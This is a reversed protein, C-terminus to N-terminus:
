KLIISQLKSMAKKMEDSDKLNNVSNLGSEGGGTGGGGSSSNNPVEKEIIIVQNRKSRRKLNDGNRKQNSVVKLDKKEGKISKNNVGIIERIKAIAGSVKSSNDKKDNTM